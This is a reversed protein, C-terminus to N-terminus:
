MNQINEQLKGLNYIYQSDLKQGDLIVIGCVIEEYELIDGIEIDHIEKVTNNKLIVFVIHLLKRMAHLSGLSDSWFHSLFLSM